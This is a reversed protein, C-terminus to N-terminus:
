KECYKCEKRKLGLKPFDKYKQLYKPVDRDPEWACSCNECYFMRRTEDQGKSAKSKRNLVAGQSRLDDKCWADIVWQM